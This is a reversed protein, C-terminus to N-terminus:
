GKIVALVFENHGPSGVPATANVVLDTIHDLRKKREVHEVKHDLNDPCGKWAQAIDEKTATESLKLFATAAQRDALELMTIEAAYTKSDSKLSSRKAKVAEQHCVM